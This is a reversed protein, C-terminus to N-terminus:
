GYLDNCSCFCLFRGRLGFGELLVPGQVWGLWRGEDDVGSTVYWFNLLLLLSANKRASRVEM